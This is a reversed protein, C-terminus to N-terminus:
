KITIKKGNIIYIGAPLSKSTSTTGVKMGQINYVPAESAKSATSLSAIGAEESQDESLNGIVRVYIPINGSDLVWDVNVNVYIYTGEVYSTEHDINVDADIAGSLLQLRVIDNEAFTYKDNGEDVVGVDNLVIDGLSGGFAEIYLDYIAFTITGDTSGPTLTVTYGTLPISEDDIPEAITVYIDCIYEGTIASVDLASASYPLSTLLLVLFSLLTKKM